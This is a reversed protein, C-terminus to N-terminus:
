PASLVHGGSDTDAKVEIDSIDDVVVGDDALEISYTGVPVDGFAFNGSDDATTQGLFYGKWRLVVVYQDGVPASGSIKGSESAELSFDQDATNLERRVGVGQLVSPAFGAKSAVLDYTGERLPILKYSGDTITRTSLAEDGSQQASITVGAIASDDAADTAEGTISGSIQVGFMDLKPKLLFEDRDGRELVSTRVNFDLLLLTLTDRKIEFEGKLKLGSQEGSPVKLPYSEGDIVIRNPSRFGPGGIPSGGGEALFLRLEKYIGVPLVSDALVATRENQLTLLDFERDGRSVVEWKDEGNVERRAEVRIFKVWVSDAGDVPSDSLLLRLQGTTDAAGGSDAGCGCAAFGLVILLSCVRSM